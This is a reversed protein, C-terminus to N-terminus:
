QNLRFTDSLQDKKSIITPTSVIIFRYDASLYARLSQRTALMKFLM